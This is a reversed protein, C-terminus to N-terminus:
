NIKDLHEKATKDFDTLLTDGSMAWEFDHMVKELKSHMKDLNTKYIEILEAYTNVDYAADLYGHEKLDNGMRKLTETDAEFPEEWCIYDYYGGSM